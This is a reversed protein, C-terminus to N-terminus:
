AKQLILKATESNCTEQDKNNKLFTNTNCDLKEITECQSDLRM